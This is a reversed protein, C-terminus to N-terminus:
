ASNALVADIEALLRARQEEDCFAARVGARALGAVGPEDLNCLEAAAAYERNLDTDFMGPDDTSLTVSVGAALLRPLPHADLSDAARTRVNSILCVELPIDEARLHALLRDDGVSGIGHGIREARLETLAAWVEEPGTTEGAHAVLHLGADAGREFAPRYNARPYGVELGALGLAVTGPPREEVAYDVTDQMAQPGFGAPIDFIWNLAVGHERLADARGLTLADTLEAAPMGKALHMAATVTVEAYRVNSRAADRALGVLLTRVDAADRVLGDVKAYVNIFHPFDTFEYFRVLADADTPVGGDPHRRALQLVTEPSASGVLHLHLEVKPVAAVFDAIV